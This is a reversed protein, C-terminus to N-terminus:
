HYDLYDVLVADEGEFAFTVRWNASVGVAWHNRLGGALPHFNWGPRDM